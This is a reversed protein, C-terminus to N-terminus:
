AVEVLRQMWRWGLVALGSGSLLCAVGPVTALLFHAIRRDTVVTWSTFGVPLLSLIRASLRAQAAHARRDARIAARERVTAATRDIAAAGPGGARHVASLVAGALREDEAQTPTSGRARVVVAEEVADAFPLGASIRTAVDRVFGQWEGTATETVAAGISAGSRVRRAVEELSAALDLAARERDATTTGSRM